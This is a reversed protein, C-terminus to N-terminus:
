VKGSNKGFDVAGPGTTQAPKTTDDRRSLDDGLADASDTTNNQAFDDGTGGAVKELDSDDIKRKDTM